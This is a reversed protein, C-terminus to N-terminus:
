KGTVRNAEPNRFAWTQRLHQELMPATSHRAAPLTHTSLLEALFRQPAPSSFPSNFRESEKWRAQLIIYKFVPKSEFLLPLARTKYRTNLCCCRGAPKFQSDQPIQNVQTKGSFGWHMESWISGDQSHRTVQASCCQSLSNGNLEHAPPAVCILLAGPRCKM